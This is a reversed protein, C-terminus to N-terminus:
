RRDGVQTTKTCAVARYLSRQAAALPVHVRVLGGLLLAERAAAASTTGSTNDTTGTTSAGTSSSTSPTAFFITVM